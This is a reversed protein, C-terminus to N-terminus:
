GEAPAEEGHFKAYNKQFGSGQSDTEIRAEGFFANQAKKYAGSKTNFAPGANAKENAM